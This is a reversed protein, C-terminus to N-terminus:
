LTTPSLMFGLVVSLTAPPSRHQAVKLLAACRERVYPRGDPDRYRELAAVAATAKEM